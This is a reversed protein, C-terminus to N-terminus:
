FYSFLSLHWTEDWEEEAEGTRGPVAPMDDGEALQVVVEQAVDPKLPRVDEGGQGLGAVAIGRPHQLDEAAV